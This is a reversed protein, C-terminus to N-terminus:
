NAKMEATLARNPSIEKVNQWIKKGNTFVANDLELSSRVILRHLNSSSIYYPNCTAVRQINDVGETASLEPNLTHLCSGSWAHLKEVTDISSPIDTAINIQTM